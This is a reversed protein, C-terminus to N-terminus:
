TLGLQTIQSNNYQGNLDNWYDDTDDKLNECDNPCRPIKGLCSTTCNDKQWTANASTQFFVDTTAPTEAVNIVISNIPNSQPCINYLVTSAKLNCSATVTQATTPATCTFNAATGIFNTYICSGASVTPYTFSNPQSYTCLINYTGGTNVTSPSANGSTFTLPICSQAMAPSLSMLLFLALCTLMKNFKHKDDPAVYFDQDRSPINFLSYNEKMEPIGHECSFGIDLVEKFKGFLFHYGRSDMSETSIKKLATFAKLYKNM